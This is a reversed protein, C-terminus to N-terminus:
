RTVGAASSRGGLGQQWSIAGVLGEPSTLLLFGVHRVAVLPFDVVEPSGVAFGFLICFEQGFSRPPSSIPSRKRVLFRWPFGIGPSPLYILVSTIYHNRSGLSFVGCGAPSPSIASFCFLLSMLSSFWNGQGGQTLHLLFVVLSRLAPPRQGPLPVRLLRECRFISRWTHALLLAARALRPKKWQPQSRKLLVADAQRCFIDYGTESPLRSAM